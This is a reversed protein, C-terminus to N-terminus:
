YRFGLLLRLPFGPEPQDALWNEMLERDAATFPKSTVSAIAKTEQVFHRKRGDITSLLLPMIAKLEPELTKLLLKIEANLTQHLTGILVHERRLAQIAEELELSGQQRMMIPFLVQDQLSQHAEWSPELVSNIAHALRMDTMEPLCEALSELARCIEAQLVHDAALRQDLDTRTGPTTKQGRSRM